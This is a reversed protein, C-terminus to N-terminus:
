AIMLIPCVYYRPNWRLPYCKKQGGVNIVEKSRGIIKVYGEDITEVLDGTKFWGDPTFADM